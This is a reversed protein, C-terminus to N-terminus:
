YLIGVVIRKIQYFRVREPDPENNNDGKMIAYWGNSDYGIDIVRHVVTTNAINSYYSVIDGIHIDRPSKPVIEIADTGYDIVPDMSNTDAFTAWKPNDIYIIVRDKKFEIQKEKIRDYPSPRDIAVGNYDLVKDRNFDFVVDFIKVNKDINSGIFMGVLFSLYSFIVIIRITRYLNFNM